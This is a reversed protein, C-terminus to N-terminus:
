VPFWVSMERRFHIVPDDFGIWGCHQCTLQIRQSLKVLLASDSLSEIDQSIVSSTGCRPCRDTM